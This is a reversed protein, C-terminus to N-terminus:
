EERPWNHGTSLDGHVGKGAAELSIPRGGDPFFEDDGEGSQRKDNEQRPMQGSVQQHIDPALGEVFVGMEEVGHEVAHPNPDGPDPQQHHQHEMDRGGNGEGTLIAGGALRVLELGSLLGGLGRPDHNNGAQGDEREHDEVDKMEGDPHVRVESFDSGRVRISHDDDAKSIREHHNEIEDRHGEEARVEGM